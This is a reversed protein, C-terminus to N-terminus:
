RRPATGRSGPRAPASRAASSANTPANTPVTNPTPRRRPRRAARSPRRRSGAQGVAHRDALPLTARARRRGSPAPARALRLAARAPPPALHPAPDAPARPQRGYRHDERGLLARLGVPRVGGDLLHHPRGHLSVRACAPAGYTRRRALVLRLLTRRRRAGRLLGQDRRPVRRLRSLLLRRLGFHRAVHAALRRDAVARM